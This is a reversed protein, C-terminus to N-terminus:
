GAGQSRARGAGNRGGRRGAAGDRPLAQHHAPVPDFAGAGAAIRVVFHTSKRTPCCAIRPLPRLRSAWATWLIPTWTNTRFRGGCWPGYREFTRTAEVKVGRRLMADTVNRVDRRRLESIKVQGIVPVINRRLRREIEAKSRLAAKEPDALYADVLAAVTTGAAAQGALVLRPDQGAEVYGRAELAKGRAASTPRRIPASRRALGNETQLRGFISAGAGTVPKPSGSPSGPSPRTTTTPGGALRNRLLTCFRDTLAITPMPLVGVFTPGSQYGRPVRARAQTCSTAIGRLRM